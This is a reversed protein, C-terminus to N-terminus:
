VKKGVIYVLMGVHSLSQPYNSSKREQLRPHKSNYLVKKRYLNGTFPSMQCCKNGNELGTKANMVM